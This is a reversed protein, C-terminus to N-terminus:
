DPKALADGTTEYHSNGAFKAELEEPVAVFKGKPFVIGFAEFEDPVVENPNNKDGIFKAKM